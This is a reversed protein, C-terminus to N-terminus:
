TSLGGISAIRLWKSGIQVKLVKVSRKCGFTINGEWRHNLVRLPRKGRQM